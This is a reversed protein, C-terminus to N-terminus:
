LAQSQGALGSTEFHTSTEFPRSGRPNGSMPWSFFYADKDLDGTLFTPNEVDIGESVKVLELESVKVLELTLITTWGM